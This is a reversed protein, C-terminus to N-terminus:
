LESFRRCSFLCEAVTSSSFGWGGSKERVGVVVKDSVGVSVWGVCESLRGDHEVGFELSPRVHCGALRVDCRMAACRMSCALQIV